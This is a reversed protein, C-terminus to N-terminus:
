NEISLIIECSLSTIFSRDERADGEVERSGFCWPNNPMSNDVVQLTVQIWDWDYLSARGMYMYEDSRHEEWTNAPLVTSGSSLAAGGAASGDGLPQEIATPSSNEGDTEDDWVHVLTTGSMFWRWM